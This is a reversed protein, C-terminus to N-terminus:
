KNPGIRPFVVHDGEIECSVLTVDSPNKLELKWGKGSKNLLTYGFEHRMESGSVTLGRITMGNMSTPIAQALDTGGDGAVIQPPRGHEFSLIEFLHTHGSLV